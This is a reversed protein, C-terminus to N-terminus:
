IASAVFRKCWVTRFNFSNPFTALQSISSSSTSSNRQCESERQTYTTCLLQASYTHAHTHTHTISLLLSALTLANVNRACVICQQTIRLCKLYERTTKHRRAVLHMHSPIIVTRRLPVCEPFTHAHTRALPYIKDFVIHTSAVKSTASLFVLPLLPLPLSHYGDKNIHVHTRAHTKYVSESLVSAPYQNSFVYGTSAKIDNSSPM